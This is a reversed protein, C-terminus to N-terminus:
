LEQYYTVSPREIDFGVKEYARRAPAYTDELGTAVTAFELGRERFTELVRKYLSTAIGRGQYAPDVANNGITGIGKGENVRFTVYGAIRGDVDAVFVQDLRRRCQEMVQGRKYAKWDGEYKADFLADGLNDRYHEYAPEWATVTIEGIREIDDERCTRLAIEESMPMSM